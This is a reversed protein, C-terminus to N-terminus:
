NAYIREVSIGITKIVSCSPKKRFQHGNMSGAWVSTAQSGWYWDIAGICQYHSLPDDVLYKFRHVLLMISLSWCSLRKLSLMWDIINEKWENWSGMKMKHWLTKLFSDPTSLDAGQSKAFSAFMKLCRSLGGWGHEELSNISINSCM